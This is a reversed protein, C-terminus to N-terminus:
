LITKPHNKKGRLFNALEVDDFFVDGYLNKNLPLTIQTDDPLDFTITEPSIFRFSSKPSPEM